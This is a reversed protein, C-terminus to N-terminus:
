LYWITNIKKVKCPLHSPYNFWLFFIPYFTNCYMSFYIFKLSFFVWRWRHFQRITYQVTKIQTFYILFLGMGGSLIGSIFFMYQVIFGIEQCFFHKFVFPLICCSERCQMKGKFSIGPTFYFCYCFDYILVLFM